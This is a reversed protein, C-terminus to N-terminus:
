RTSVTKRMKSPVYVSIMKANRTSMNVYVAEGIGLKPLVSIVPKDVGLIRRIKEIYDENRSGFVILNYANELIESPYDDPNQSSLVVGVKRSRGERVIEVLTRLRLIRWADDVILLLGRDRQRGLLLHRVIGILLSAYTNQFVTGREELDFLVRIEGCALHEEVWRYNPATAVFEVFPIIASASPDRYIDEVDKEIAILAELVSEPNVSSLYSLAEVVMSRWSMHEVGPPPKVLNVPANRPTLVPLLNDAIYRKLDGKFDVVIVDSYGESVVQEIFSALLTSKGKGTPGIVLTHHYLYKLQISVPHATDKEFGLLVGPETLSPKDLVLPHLPALRDAELSTGSVGSEAVLGLVGLTLAIIDSFGARELRLGLHNRFVSVIVHEHYDAISKVSSKDKGEVRFVLALAIKIFPKGEVVATYLSRLKELKIELKVRETEERVLELEAQLNLMANKLKRTFGNVDFEDKYLYVYVKSPLSRMLAAYSEMAVKAREGLMEDLDYEVDRCVLFRSLVVLGPYYVLLDPPDIELNRVRSLAVVYGLKSLAKTILKM